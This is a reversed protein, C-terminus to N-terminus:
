REEETMFIVWPYNPERKVEIPLNFVLQLNVQDDNHIKSAAIDIERSIGEDLDQYTEGFRVRWNKAALHRGAQLEALFGSQEIDKLIKEEETPEM